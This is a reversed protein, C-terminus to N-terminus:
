KSNKSNIETKFLQSLKPMTKFSNIIEKLTGIGPIEEHFKTLVKLVYLLGDVGMIRIEPNEDDLLSILHKIHGNERFTLAYIDILQNFNTEYSSMEVIKLPKPGSIREVDYHLEVGNELQKMLEEITYIMNDFQMAIRSKQISGVLKDDIQNPIKSFASNLYLEFRHSISEFINCELKMIEISNVEEAISEISDELYGHILEDDELM